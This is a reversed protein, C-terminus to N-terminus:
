KKGGKKHKQISAIIDDIEEESMEEQGELKESLSRLEAKIEDLSM